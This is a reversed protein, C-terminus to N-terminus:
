RGGQSQGVTGEAKWSGNGTSFGGRLQRSAEDVRLEEVDRTACRLRNLKGANSPFVVMRLTSKLESVLRGKVAPVLSMDEIEVTERCVYHIASTQLVKQAVNPAQLVLWKQQLELLLLHLARLLPRDADSCPETSVPGKWGGASKKVNESAPWSDGHELGM